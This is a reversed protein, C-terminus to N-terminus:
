CLVLLAKLFGGAFQLNVGIALNKKRVTFIDSLPRSKM